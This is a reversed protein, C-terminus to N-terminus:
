QPIKGAFFALKKAIVQMEFTDAPRRYFREFDRDTLRYLSLIDHAARVESGFQREFDDEIHQQYRMLQDEDADWSAPRPSPPAHKGSEAVFVLIKGSLEDLTLVLNTNQARILADFQREYTWTRAIYWGGAIALLATLATLREERGFFRSSIAVWVILKALLIAAAATFCAAVLNAPPLRMRGGIEACVFLMMVAPAVFRWSVIRSLAQAVPDDSM